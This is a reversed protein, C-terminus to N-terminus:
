LPYVDGLIAVHPEVVETYVLKTYVVCDINYLFLVYYM